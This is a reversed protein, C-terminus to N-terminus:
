LERGMEVYLGVGRPERRPLDLRDLASLAGGALLPAVGELLPYLFDSGRESPPLLVLRLLRRPRNLKPQRQSRDDCAPSASPPPLRERRALRGQLRLIKANVYQHPEVVVM